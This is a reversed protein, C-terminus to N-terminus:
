RSLFEFFPEKARVHRGFREITHIVLLVLIAYEAMSGAEFVQHVRAAYSLAGFIASYVISVFLGAFVFWQWRSSIALAIAYMAATIVLTKEQFHGELLRELFLPVLPMLLHFLLCPIFQSWAGSLSVTECVRPPTKGHNQITNGMRKDKLM